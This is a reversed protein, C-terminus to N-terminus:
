ATKLNVLKMKLHPVREFDRDITVMTLNHEIATAAILTDIDGIDQHLPRLTRRIDAYRELIAYTLPYPYIQELLAELSTKYASFDAFKKVYEAVEGYVLMSTAAEEQTLLPRVLQKAKSRALLYGAVVSTDLLYKKM